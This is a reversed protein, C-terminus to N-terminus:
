RGGVFQSDSLVNNSVDAKVIGARFWYVASKRLLQPIISSFLAKQESSPYLYVGAMTKAVESIPLNWDSAAIQNGENRNALWFDNAESLASVLAAVDSTRTAISRDSMYLTDALIPDLNRTTILVHAGPRTMATTLYPEWTVAAEVKGAAFAAGAEDTSMPVLTVANASIGNQDLVYLLLLHGAFGEEVAVRKGRLDQVTKIAASALIGDAGNSRDFMFVVKGAVQDAASVIASDITGGMGDLAGSALAANKQDLPDIVATSVHIGRKAFFGKSEAIYFASYGLWTNFAIRLPSSGHRRCGSFELMAAFAAGTTAQLFRRRTLLGETLQRIIM